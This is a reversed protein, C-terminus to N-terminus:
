GVPTRSGLSTITLGLPDLASLDLPAFRGGGMAQFMQRGVQLHGHLFRPDALLATTDIGMMPALWALSGCTGVFARSRAIIASQVALNERPDLAHRLSVIRAAREFTYDEHDDLALGTDLMVVPHREALALVLSQLTRRLAPTDPLSAATYLKVSVYDAPLEPLTVEPAQILRYVTRRRLFDMHRHGLMFQEFLRYMFSPHLVRAGHLGRRAIVADVISQDFSTSSWQKLSGGNEESRRVNGRTFEDVTMLDFVEVSEPTIDRYWAAAGGRTVVTLRSPKIGYHTQVWRVFPVWYLVEYGVESLWPGVIIPEKGAVLRGIEREVQWERGYTKMRKGTDGWVHLQREARRPAAKGRRWLRVAEVRTRVLVARTHELVVKRQRRYPRYVFRNYGRVVVSRTLLVGYMVGYGVQSPLSRRVPTEGAVRDTVSAANAPLNGTVERVVHNVVDGVVHDVASSTTSSAKADVVPDVADSVPHGSATGAIGQGAHGGSKGALREDTM